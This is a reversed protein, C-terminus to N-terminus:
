VRVFGVIMWIMFLVFPPVEVALRGDAGVLGVSRIVAQLYWPGM